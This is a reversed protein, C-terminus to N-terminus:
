YPGGTLYVGGPWPGKKATHQGENNSVTLEIYRWLRPPQTFTHQPNQQDSTAFTGDGNDFKWLWQTPNGTSQDTCQVTVPQGPASHGPSFDFAAQPADMSEEQPDHSVLFAVVGILSAAILFRIFM